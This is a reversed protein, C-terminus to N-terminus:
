RRELWWFWGNDRVVLNNEAAFQRVAKEVGCDGWRLDDGCLIGSDKVYPYWARLDAYCAKYTHTADIYILDPKVSLVKAAQTSEMRVPIIKHTLQTHIVNSLFQNYLNALTQPHHQEDPSGEWTDVAYVKGNEPLMRAIDITSLGMWSGVEIVTQVNFKKILRALPGHNLYWGEPSYPLLLAEDYPAPLNPNVSDAFGSTWSFLIFYLFFCRVVFRM